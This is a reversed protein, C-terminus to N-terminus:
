CPRGAPRRSPRTCAATPPAPSPAAPCPRATATTSGQGHGLHDVARNARPHGTRGRPKAAELADVPRGHEDDREAAERDHDADQPDQDEDRELRHREEPGRAHGRPRRQREPGARSAPLRQAGEAHVLVPLVQRDDERVGANGEVPQGGRARRRGRGGELRRKGDGHGAQVGAGGDDRGGAAQQALVQGGGRAVAAHRQHLDAGRRPVPVLREVAHVDRHLPAADDDEVRGPARHALDAVVVAVARAPHGAQQVVPRHGHPHPVLGAPFPPRADPHRRALAHGVDADPVAPHHDRGRIPSPDVAPLGVAVLRQEGVHRAELPRDRREVEHQPAVRNRRAGLAALDRDEEAGRRGVPALRHHAGPRELRVPARHQCEGHRRAVPAEGGRVCVTREHQAM